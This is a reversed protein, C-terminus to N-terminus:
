KDGDTKEITQDQENSLTSQLMFMNLGRDIDYLGFFVYRTLTSRRERLTTWYGQLVDRSLSCAEADMGDRGERKRNKDFGM